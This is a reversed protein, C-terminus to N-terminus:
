FDESDQTQEEEEQPAESSGSEEAPTESSSGGEGVVEAFGVKSLVKTIRIRVNQGQKVGPIFIVFGQKKAIGDGKEGVAEVLVTLEEGVKVPATGGGFGGSSRGGGRFGGGGGYGGGYGGGRDGSRGGRDGYNGYMNKKVKSYIRSVGFGWEQFLGPM